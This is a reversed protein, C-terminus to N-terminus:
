VECARGGDIMMLGDLLELREKGVGVNLRSFLRTNMIMVTMTTRTGLLTM